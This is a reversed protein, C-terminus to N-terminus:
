RVRLEFVFPLRYKSAIAILHHILASVSRICMELREVAYESFAENASEGQRHLSRVFSSVEEFFLEWGSLNAADVEM